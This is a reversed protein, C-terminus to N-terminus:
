TLSTDLTALHSFQAHALWLKLHELKVHISSITGFGELSHLLIRSPKLSGHIIFQLQHVLEFDITTSQREKM